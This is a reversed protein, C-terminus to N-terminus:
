GDDEAKQMEVEGYYLHPDYEPGITEDGEARGEPDGSRPEGGGELIGLVLQDNVQDLQEASLASLDEEGTLDFCQGRFEDSDPDKDYLGACARLGEEDLDEYAELGIEADVLEFFADIDEDSLFAAVRLFVEVPLSEWLTPGAEPHTDFTVMGTMPSISRVYGLVMEPGIGFAIEPVTLLSADRRRQPRGREYFKPNEDWKERRGMCRTNPQCQTRFWRKSQNKRKAKNRKYYEADQRKDEPLQERQRSGDEGGRETAPAMDAELFRDAVRLASEELSGRRKRNQRRRRRNSTKFAGKNRNRKRWMKAKRRLKTKNRRYYNRSKLRSQGRQRRQRQGPKWRRRYAEKEMPDPEDGEEWAMRLMVTRVAIEASTMTRRTVTGYDDKYPNGYEEGPESLTRPRKDIDNDPTNYEFKPIDRGAGGPTASGPLPLNQEKTRDLDTPLNKASDDRVLTKVGPEAPMKLAVRAMLGEFLRGEAERGGWMRVAEALSLRGPLHGDVRLAGREEPDIRRDRLACDVLLDVVAKLAAAPPSKMELNLLNVVRVWGEQILFDTWPSDFWHFDEDYPDGFTKRFKRMTPGSGRIEDEAWREHSAGGMLHLHGQPSIWAYSLGKVPCANARRAVRHASPFPGAM